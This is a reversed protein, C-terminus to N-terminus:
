LCLAALVLFAFASIALMLLTGRRFGEDFNDGLDAEIVYSGYCSCAALVRMNAKAGAQANGSGLLDLSPEM